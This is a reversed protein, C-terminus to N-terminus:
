NGIDNLSQFPVQATTNDLTLNRSGNPAITAVQFNSGTPVTFADFETTNLDLTLDNGNVALISPTLGNAQFMGYTIPINLKVAQGAIYTNSETAPNVTVSAIAPYGQTLAVLTLSSPIQIVGPLFTNANNPITM